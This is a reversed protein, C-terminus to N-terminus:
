IMGHKVGLCKDCKGKVSSCFATNAAVELNIISKLAKFNQSLDVFVSVSFGKFIYSLLFNHLIPYNIKCYFYNNVTLILTVHM